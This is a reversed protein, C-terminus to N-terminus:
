EYRLAITCQQDIPMNHTVEFAQKYLQVGSHSRYLMDQLISMTTRDLGSNAPHRMRFNLAEVPDFIYLQAYLPTVGIYPGPRNNIAHDVTVGLSTMALANSYQRIHNRFNKSQPDNNKLLADLERPPNKLKPLVIKGSFCCMGFTILDKTSSTLCEIMWHLAGCNACKVDMKGLNHVPWDRSFPQRAARLLSHVNPLLPPLPAPLVHQLLAPVIPPPLQLPEPLEPPPQFPALLVPPPMPFPQAHVRHGGQQLPLPAPPVAVLLEALNEPLNNYQIGNFIAPQLLAAAAAAPVPVPAFAPAPAPAPRVRRGGRQPPLPAPPVAALLQALNAPLNNYQVGNFMAPQLLPAPAPDDLVPVAPPNLAPVAVTLVPPVPVPLAALLDPIEFRLPEIHPIQSQHPTRRAQPSELAHADRESRQAAICVRRPTNPPTEPRYFISILKSELDILILSFM